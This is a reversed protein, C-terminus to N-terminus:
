QYWEPQTTKWAALHRKAGMYYNRYATVADEHKYEDPMAQAFPTLKQIKIHRPPKQLGHLRGTVAHVKNYRTTYEKLLGQGLHWLWMYNMISERTWKSCPHNIHTPRYLDTVILEEGDLVHHATSLLQATELIMKVVHKDVHYKAAKYPDTDLVFINM